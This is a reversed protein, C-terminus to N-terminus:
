QARVRREKQSARRARLFRKTEQVIKREGFSTQLFIFPQRIRGLLGAIEAKKIGEGLFVEKTKVDRFWGLGTGLGYDLEVPDAVVVSIVDHLRLLRRWLAEEVEELFDSFIFLFNPRGDLYLGYSLFQNLDGRWRGTTLEGNKKLPDFRALSEASSLFGRIINGGGEFSKAFARAVALSLGIKSGWHSAFSMSASADVMFTAVIRRDMERMKVYLQSKRLSTPIDLARFPDGPSWTRFRDFEMGEPTQIENVFDGPSWLAALKKFVFDFRSRRM